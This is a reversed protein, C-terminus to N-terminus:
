FPLICELELKRKKMYNDALESFLALDSWYYRDSKCIKENYIEAIAWQLELYDVFTFQDLLPFLKQELTKM